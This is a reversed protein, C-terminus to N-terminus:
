LVAHKLILKCDTTQDEDSNHELRCTAVSVTHSFELSLTITRGEVMPTDNIFCIELGDAMIKQKPINVSDRINNKGDDLICISLVSNNIKVCSDSSNLHISFNHTGEVIDDHHASLTVCVVGGMLQNFPGAGEALIIQQNVDDYDQAGLNYYM